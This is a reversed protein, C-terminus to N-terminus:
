ILKIKEYSKKLNPVTDYNSIEQPKIWIYEIHEWDLKINPQNNLVIICPVIIWKKNIQNDKFTLIKGFKYSFIDKEYIGTEEKLEELIKNKLPKIEDIYGAVTNWKDQYTSVKRSRKLLLIRDEFKVFITVVYAIESNSYNIRGDQFKPLKTSLEKIQKFINFINNM